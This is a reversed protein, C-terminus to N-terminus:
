NNTKGPKLYFYYYLCTLGQILIPLGLIKLPGISYSITQLDPIFLGAYWIILLIGAALEWKWSLIFGAAYIILLATLIIRPWTFLDSIILNGQIFILYLITYIGLLVQLALKWQKNKAPVPGKRNRYGATIFLVGLVLLPIGSIIGFGGGKEVIFLELIWMGANWLLFLVGTIIMHRWSLSFGIIFLLFLSYVIIGETNLSPWAGGFDGSLIFLLYLIAYVM